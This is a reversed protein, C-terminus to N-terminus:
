LIRESLDLDVAYLLEFNCCSYTAKFFSDELLASLAADVDLSGPLSINVPFFSSYTKCGSVFSPLFCYLIM